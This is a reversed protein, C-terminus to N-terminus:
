ESSLSGGSGRRGEDEEVKVWGEKRFAQIEGDLEAFGPLRMEGSRRKRGQLGDDYDEDELQEAEDYGTFSHEEKIPAIHMHAAPPVGFPAPAPALVHCNGLGNNSAFPSSLTSLDRGEFVRTNELMRDRQAVRGCGPEHPEARAATISFATVNVRRAMDQEGLAWHMAEAARWPVGLEVAIPNWLEPKLRHRDSNSHKYPTWPPSPRPHTYALLSHLVYRDYVRALKNRKEEDWESRRELYNQYHLRCSINSRGPLEISIDDWKM